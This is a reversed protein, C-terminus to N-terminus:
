HIITLKKALDDFQFGLNAISEKIDEYQTYSSVIELQKKLSIEGDEVPFRVFCEKVKKVHAENDRSFDGMTVLNESLYLRVYDLDISDLKPVILGRNETAYFPETHIRIDRAADGKINWSIIKSYKITEKDKLIPLYKESQMFEAPGDVKSSFLPTDGKNNKAFTITFKVSPSSTEFYDKNGLKVEVFDGESLNMMELKKMDDIMNEMSDKSDSIIDIAQSIEIASEVKKEFSDFLKNWKDVKNFEDRPVYKCNPDGSIGSARKNWEKELSILDDKEIPARYKDLSVGIDEVNYIFVPAYEEVKSKKQFILMYTKWNNNEFMGKPFSVIGLINTNEKLYSRISNNVNKLIGAPVIVFATGPSTEFNSLGSIQNAIYKLFRSEIGLGSGEYFESLGLDKLSKVIESVGNYFFPVNAFIFDAPHKVAFRDTGSDSSDSVVQSLTGTGNEDTYLFSENILENFEERKHPELALKDLLHLLMNSKALTIMERSKDIGLVNYKSYDFNYPYNLGELVFGGVGCAPDIIRSGEKPNAMRWVTQVVSRPTIHQGNKIKGERNSSGLFTELVRRKFDPDLQTNAIDGLGDLDDLVSQFTNSQETFAFANEEIIGPQTGMTPFLEDKIFKRITTKYFNLAKPMKKIQSISFDSDLLKADSIGKYVLLEVFTDLCRHAEEGTSVFIKQWLSKILNPFETLPNFYDVSPEVDFENNTPQKGKLISQSLMGLYKMIENNKGLIIEKGFVDVPFGKYLTNIETLNSAKDRYLVKVKNGARAIFFHTNPLNGLYNEKLQEIAEDLQTDKLKDEIAVLIHKEKEGIAILQDPKKNSKECNFGSQKLNTFSIDNCKYLILSKDKSLRLQPIGQSISESM